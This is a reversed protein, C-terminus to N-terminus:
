FIIERSTRKIRIAKVGIPHSTSALRNRNLFYALVNVNPFINLKLIKLVSRFESSGITETLPARPIHVQFDECCTLLRSNTPIFYKHSNGRIGKYM